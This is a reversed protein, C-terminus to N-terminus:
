THIPACRYAWFSPPCYGEAISIMWYRAKWQVASTSSDLGDFLKVPAKAQKTVFWWGGLGKVTYFQHFLTPTPRLHLHLCLAEFAVIIRWSNPLLQTPTVRFYNTLRVQFEHFAGQM